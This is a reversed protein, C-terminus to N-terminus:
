SATPWHRLLKRAWGRLQHEDHFPIDEMQALRWFSKHLRPGDDGLARGEEMDMDAIERVTQALSNMDERTMQRKGKVLAEIETIWRRARGGSAGRATGSGEADGDVDMAGSSSASRGTSASRGLPRGRGGGRRRLLDVAPKAGEGRLMSGAGFFEELRAVYGATLATNERPEMRTGSNPGDVKMDMEAEERARLREVLMSVGALGVVPEGPLKGVPAVSTERAAPASEHPHTNDRYHAAPRRILSDYTYTYRPPTDRATAGTEARTRATPPELRPAPLLERASPPPTSSSFPLSPVLKFPFPASTSANVRPPPAASTANTCSRVERADVFTVGLDVRRSGLNPSSARVSVSSASSVSESQERLFTIPPVDHPGEGLAYERRGNMLRGFADDDDRNTARISTAGSISADVIRDRSASPSCATVGAAGEFSYTKPTSSQPDPFLATPTRCPTSPALPLSESSYLTHKGKISPPVSHLDNGLQAQPHPRLPSLPM